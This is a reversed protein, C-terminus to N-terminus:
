AARVGALQLVVSRYGLYSNQLRAQEETGGMAEAAMRSFGMRFAAYALMWGPLRARADDGTLAQYRRLLYERASPPMKWEIMAGALDWAIDSPGPFFHDEGHDVGDVKQWGTATRIWEHPHMRGDVLVPKELGLGPVSWTEGLEEGCNVAVMEETLHTSGASIFARSRFALYEAMRELIEPCLDHTAAPEGHIFNYALYGDGLWQPSPFFGSCALAEARESAMRGFPGLGAFKILTRRKRQAFKKSEFQTWSPPWRNKERILERRWQGGGWPEAGNEWDRHRPPVVCCAFRRWRRAGDPACLRAVDPEVSCVLLIRDRAIGEALLAEGVSLFTSGSRGPGEDVVVFAAGTSRRREIWHLEGPSFRMRRDYPHGGPRVSAREVSVGRQILGAAVAAGLTTGISRIGIVAASRAERVQRPFNNVAAAYQLPHVDYFAFGEPASYAIEQSAPVQELLRELDLQPPVSATAQMALADTIAAALTAAPCGADALASELMGALILASLQADASGAGLASRLPRILEDAQARRRETRFVLMTNLLLAPCAEDPALKKGLLNRVTSPTQM